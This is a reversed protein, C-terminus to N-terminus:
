ESSWSAATSLVPVRRARSSTARGEGALPSSAGRPVSSRGITRCTSYNLRGKLADIGQSVLKDAAEPTLKEKIM